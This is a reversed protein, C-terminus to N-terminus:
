TKLPPRVGIVSFLRIPDPTNKGLLLLHKDEKITYISLDNWAVTCCQHLDKQDKQGPDITMIMMLQPCMCHFCSIAVNLNTEQM